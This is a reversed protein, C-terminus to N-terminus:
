GATLPPAQSLAEIRREAWRRAVEALVVLALSLVIVVSGIAIVEPLLAPTRSASYLVVPYTPAGPPALFSAIAFEDFSITFAILFSSFLAPALLPLTVFLFARLESAGLDCAAETISADLTRLRPLIVLVSYPLSIVVHGALVAVLSTAIGMQHLLVVLGVALVIYPVVLPILILVVIVGRLALRRRALSVAAMVGLLTAALGNVAAILVSRKLASTLTTDSFAASFWKTSFSKIPLSPITGSNFAFVMLVILPAYLFVLLLGFYTSLLGRGVRGVASM